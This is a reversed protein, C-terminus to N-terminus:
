VIFVRTWKQKNSPPQRRNWINTYAHVVCTTYPCFVWVSNFGEYGRIHWHSVTYKMFMYLRSTYHNRTLVLCPPDLHRDMTLNQFQYKSNNTKNLCATYIVSYNSTPEFAEIDPIDYQSNKSHAVLIFIMLM